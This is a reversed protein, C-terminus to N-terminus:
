AASRSAARDGFGLVSKSLSFIPSPPRSVARVDPDVRELFDDVIPKGDFMKSKLYNSLTVNLSFALKKVVFPV